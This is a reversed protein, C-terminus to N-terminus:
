IREDRDSKTFAFRLSRLAFRNALSLEGGDSMLIGSQFVFRRNGAQECARVINTVDQSM